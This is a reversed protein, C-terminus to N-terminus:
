WAILFHDYKYGLDTNLTEGGGGRFAYVGVTNIRTSAFTPAANTTLVGDQWIKYIRNPIDILVEIQTWERNPVARNDVQGPIHAEGPQDTGGDVFFSTYGGGFGLEEAHRWHGGEKLQMLILSHDGELNVFKNSIPHWNAADFDMYVRMSMYLRNTGNAAYTFVNGIGHGSGSGIVGGGYSGPAWRGQWAGDATKSWNSGFYIMNWGPAGSIPRDVNDPASPISQSFDIESSQTFSAPRNPYPGGANGANGAGDSGVSGVRIAISDDSTVSTGCALMLTALVYFGRWASFRRDRYTLVKDATPNFARTFASLIASRVRVLRSAEPSDTLRDTQCWRTFM